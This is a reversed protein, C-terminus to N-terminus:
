DCSPGWSRGSVVRYITGPHVGFETALTVALGKRFRTRIEQATAETLKANNGRHSNEINTVPELHSPRVCPRTKCLHDLERGEPVPGNEREWYVRHALQMRGNHYLMGYGFRTTCRQWVWCPTEYGCDQETYEVPSKRRNHGLCYRIHQGRVHGIPVRSQKAVPTQEGCGCMCLGSPNPSDTM